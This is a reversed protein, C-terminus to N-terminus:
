QNSTSTTTSSTTSTGSSLSQLYQERSTQSNTISEQMKTKENESGDQQSSITSNIYNERIDRNYRSRLENLATKVINPDNEILRAVEGNVPYTPTAADQNGADTYKAAYLKSGNIMYAEVIANSMALTEEEALKMTITDTSDVGAINPIEVQKKSVVIFDQGSPMLLRIDVYDGTILDMPLVITNYEQKRVDSGQSDELGLMDVTVITGKTMNIKAVVKKPEEGENSNTTEAQTITNANAINQPAVEASVKVPKLDNVTVEGGSQVDRNIVYVTKATLEQQENKLNMMMFVLGAIVVGLFVTTILMGLLFSNRARRQMPNTAM